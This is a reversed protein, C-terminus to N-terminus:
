AGESLDKIKEKLDKIETNLEDNEENLENVRDVLSDLEEIMNETPTSIKKLAFALEENFQERIITIIDDLTDANEWQGNIYIM